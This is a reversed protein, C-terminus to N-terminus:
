ASAVVVKNANLQLYNMVSLTLAASSVAICVSTTVLEWIPNNVVKYTDSEDDSKPRTNIVTFM